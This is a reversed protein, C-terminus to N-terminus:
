QFLTALIPAYIMEIKHNDKAFLPWTSNISSKDFLNNPAFLVFKHLGLWKKCDFLIFAM